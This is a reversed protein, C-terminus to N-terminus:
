PRLHWGFGGRRETGIAGLGHMVQGARREAVVRGLCPTGGGCSRDGRQRGADHMDIPVSRPLSSMAWTAARSSRGNTALQTSARGIGGGHGSGLPAAGERPVVSSAGVFSSLKAGCATSAM